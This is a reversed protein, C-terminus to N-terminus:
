GDFQGQRALLYADDRAARVERGNLFMPELEHAVAAFPHCPNGGGLIRTYEPNLVHHNARELRMLGVVTRGCERRQQAGCGRQQGRHVSDRPPIEVTRSAPELSMMKVRHVGAPTLPVGDMRAAHDAAHDFGGTFHNRRADDDMVVQIAEDQALGVAAPRAAHQRQRRRQRLGTEVRSLIRNLIQSFSQPLTQKFGILASVPAGSSRMMPSGAKRASHLVM